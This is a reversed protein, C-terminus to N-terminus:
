FDPGCGPGLGEDLDSADAVGTVELIVGRLQEPTFPKHVFAAGQRRLAEIRTTSGETSVVIVPLQATEPNRRLCALLAEGDMVPMNLDILALDIWHADLQRLAEEGNSAEHVEGLPLGSLRLTKIVMARMVASDDVVLVNLAM